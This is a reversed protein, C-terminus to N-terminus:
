RCRRCDDPATACIVAVEGCITLLDPPRSAPFTGVPDGNYSATVNDEGDLSLVMGPKTQMLVDNLKSILLELQATVNIWETVPGDGGPLEIGYRRHLWAAMGSMKSPYPSAAGMPFLGGGLKEDSVEGLLPAFTRKNVKVGFHKATERYLAYPPTGMYALGVAYKLYAYAALEKGGRGYRKVGLDRFLLDTQEDLTDFVRQEDM